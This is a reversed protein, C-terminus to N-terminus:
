GFETAGEPLTAGIADAILFDASGPMAWSQGARRPGAM